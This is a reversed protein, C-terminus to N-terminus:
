DKIQTPLVRFGADTVCGGVRGKKISQPLVIM